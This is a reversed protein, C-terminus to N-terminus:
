PKAAGIAFDARRRPLARASGGCVGTPPPTEACQPYRESWPNQLHAPTEACKCGRVPGSWPFHPARPNGRVVAACKIACKIRCNDVARM